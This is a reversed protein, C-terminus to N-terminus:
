PQWMLDVAWTQPPEFSAEGVFDRPFDLEILFGGMTSGQSVAENGRDEGATFYGEVYAGQVFSELFDPIIAGADFGARVRGGGDGAEFSIVPMVDGLERRATLTLIGATVGALFSAAQDEASAASGTGRGGGVMAQLAEGATTGGGTTAFALDPEKLRGTVTVTVEEDGADHVAVVRVEPDIEEAGTFALRGEELDFRKGVLEFYGRRLDVDGSVRVEVGRVAVDLDAVVLAAFDARRIWFPQPADVRIRFPYAQRRAAAADLDALEDPDHGPGIMVIDEHPALPQVRRPRGPPLEIGLDHVRVYVDGGADRFTARVSANADVQAVLIGQDRIPFDNSYIALRASKPVLGRLAIGGSVRVTGEGDHAHLRTIQVWDGRFDIRGSIQDLRQGPGVLSVHADELTLSGRVTPNELKGNAVIHGDATGGADVLKPVFALLPALPASDLDLRAEMPAEPRLRPFPSSADWTAPLMVELEARQGTFGLVAAVAEIRTQSVEAAIEVRVPDSGMVALEDSRVFLSASPEAGFVDEAVLEAVLPGSAHACVWPLRAADEADVRVHADLRPLARPVEGRLWRDLPAPGSAHMALVPRDDIRGTAEVTAEGGRIRGVLWLEPLADSACASAALPDPSDAGLWVAEVRVDGEPARGPAGRLVVEAGAVVPVDVVDDFPAPLRDLRRPALHASVAWPARDIAARADRPNKVLEVLDIEARAAVKAIAGAGDSAALEADLRGRQYTGQLDVDFPGFRASGVDIAHVDVALTPDRLTGSLAVNGRFRGSEVVNAHEPALVEVLTPSLRDLVVRAEWRAAELARVPDRRRAPLAARASAAIGGHRGLELDLDTEFAARAGEYRLYYAGETVPVGYAEADHLAGTVLLDPDRATGRLVAHVDIRGELPVDAVNPLADVISLDLSQATLELDLPGRRFRYIGRAELRQEGSAVVLQSIRIHQKPVLQVDDARGRWTDDGLQFAFAADDILWGRPERVITADIEGARGEPADFTADLDYRDPGGALAVAAREIPAGAIQIGRGAADLDVIPRAVAGRVTGAVKLHGVRAGDIRADILSARITSEIRPAGGPAEPPLLVVRSDTAVAGHLGPVLRRLNPERGIDPVSGRVHLEVPGGFRVDGRVALDGRLYPARVRDLRVGGPDITGAAVLSPIRWQNVRLATARGEVDGSGGAMPLDVDIQVEGGLRLPSAIRVVREVALRDTAITASLFRRDLLRARAQLEGGATTVSAQAAVEQFTGAIALEGRLSSSLRASVADFGLAEFTSPSLPALDIRGDIWANEGGQGRTPLAGRATVDIRDSGFRLTADIRSESEPATRLAAELKALAGVRTGGRAVDVRGEEIELDLAGDEFAIAGRLHTSELSLHRVPRYTARIAIDDVSLEDVIVTPPEADPRSPATSEFAAVISPPGEPTEILRIFGGRLTLDDFRFVRRLMSRIDPDGTVEEVYAVRRGELDYVSVHELRIRDASVVAVHGVDVDGRISESIQTTVKQRLIEHALHTDLHLYASIALSAIALAVWAVGASFNRLARM